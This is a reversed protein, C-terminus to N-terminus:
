KKWEPNPRRVRFGNENTEYLYKTIKDSRVPRRRQLRRQEREEVFKVIEAKIQAVSKDAM